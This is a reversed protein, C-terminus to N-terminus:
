SGKTGTDDPHLAKAPVFTRYRHQRQLPRITLYGSMYPVKVEPRVTALKEAVEPGSMQPM